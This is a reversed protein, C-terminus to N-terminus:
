SAPPSAPPVPTHILKNRYKVIGLAGLVGAVGTVAAIINDILNNANSAAENAAATTSANVKEQLVVIEKKIVEVAATNGKASEEVLEVQKEMLKEINGMASSVTQPSACGWCSLVMLVTMLLWVFWKM